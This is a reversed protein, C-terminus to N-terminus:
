LNLLDLLLAPVSNPSYVPETSTLCYHAGELTPEVSYIMNHNGCPQEHSHHVRNPKKGSMFVDETMGDANLRHLTSTRNNWAWRWIRHTDTIFQGVTAASRSYCILHMANRWLNFDSKTPQENPWQQTLRVEGSPRCSLTNSDIKNGSTTLINSIFLVQLSVHVRNLQRLTDNSYGSRILVQTIFQNNKCPYSQNFDVVILKMDFKSLKEWLMKMWPHAALYGYCNYSEQLPQFSLGTEVFLLSYLKQMLKGTATNCRYHMLLKNTM